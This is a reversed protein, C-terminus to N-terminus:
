FRVTCAKFVGCCVVGHVTRGNPNVAKFDRGYKDGKDCSWLNVDGTEIHTFGANDLTQAAEDEDTVCGAALLLALALVKRM